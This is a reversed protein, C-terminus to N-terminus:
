EGRIFENGFMRAEERRRKEKARSFLVFVNPKKKKKAKKAKKSDLM